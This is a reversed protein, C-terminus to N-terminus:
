ALEAVQTRGDLVTMIHLAEVSTEVRDVSRHESCLQRMEVAMVRPPPVSRRHIRLQEFVGRDGYGTRFFRVLVNVVQGHDFSWVSGFELIVEGLARDAGPDM